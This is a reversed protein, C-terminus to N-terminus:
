TLVEEYTMSCRVLNICHDAKWRHKSESADDSSWRASWKDMAAGYEAGNNFIQSFVWYGTYKGYCILELKADKAGDEISLKKLESFRARIEKNTKGEVGSYLYMHNVNPM